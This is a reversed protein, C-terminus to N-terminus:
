NRGPDAWSWAGLFVKIPTFNTMSTGIRYRTKDAVHATGILVADEFIWLLGVALLGSDV